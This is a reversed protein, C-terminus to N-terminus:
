VLLSNELKEFVSGSVGQAAAYRRISGFESRLTELVIKMADPPAELTGEPETEMARVKEPDQRRRQLARGRDLETLAYDEIIQEDSVGLSGLLVMAVLGTRDKGLTCHFVVPDPLGQAIGSVAQAIRLAAVPHKLTTLYDEEINPPTGVEKIWEDLNDFVPINRHQVPPQTLLGQGADKAAGPERLDIVTRIGLTDRVVAADQATMLGVEASRFLRRWRLTAGNETTYGGLDRFNFCGELRIHREPPNEV